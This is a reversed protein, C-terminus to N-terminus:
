DGAIIEAALDKAIRESPSHEPWTAPRRYAEPRNLFDRIRGADTALMANQGLGDSRETHQRLILCPVGLLASEEQITGGDTAVYRCRALLRVYEPYPLLSEFQIGADKFRHWWGSAQLHPMTPVDVVFRLPGRAAADLVLEGVADLRKRSLLTELRHCNWLGFDEPEPRDEDGLVQMLSDAITNAGTNLVRGRVGMGQLNAVAEAGPAYLIQSLYPLVSRLLEEPFPHLFHGSRLGAEVVAVTLGARLGLWLGLATSANDGHLLVVGGQGAFVQDRIAQRTQLGLAGLRGMWALGQFLKSVNRSSALRQDPNPLAFTERLGSTVDAHQGTDVLRMSLGARTIATMVPAMKITQAKTGIFVHIM